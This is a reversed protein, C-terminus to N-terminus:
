ALAEAITARAFCTLATQRSANILEIGLAALDPVLTAFLPLCDRGLERWPRTPWPHSGFVHQQHRPGEQLDFGLLIIKSAGLHVAVNIAAYGSTKGTRVAGPDSELGYTGTYRLVTAWAAAKQDLTYRRGPFATLTPGNRKWWGGGDAGSGYLVDAWPALTIADKVAVVRARGQCYAVDEATLSPGAAVVVITEGPFAQDVAPAQLTAAVM